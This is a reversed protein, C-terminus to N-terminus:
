GCLYCLGWASALTASKRGIPTKLFGYLYSLKKILYVM